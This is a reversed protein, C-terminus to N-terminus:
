ERSLPLDLEPDGGERPRATQVFLCTMSRIEWRPRRTVTSSSLVVRSRAGRACAPACARTEVVNQDDVDIGMVVLVLVVVLNRGNM